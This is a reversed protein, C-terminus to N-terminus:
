EFAKKESVLQDLFMEDESEQVLQRAPIGKERAIAAVRGQGNFLVDPIHAAISDAYAERPSIIKWGNARLHDVLDGLFLAALDNEHLLLVHRPSRGLHKKAIDDYFLISRYIHEVYIERLRAENIKRNHETAQKLLNNIYWDYNDITVYGNALGVTEMAARISDRAEITRGEDLFPFRFWPIYSHYHKLISDAQQMDRIYARTGVDHIHQHTHSHNALIHGANTYRDLRGSDYASIHRTVVFFAVERINRTKLHGIIKETRETGSFLPGDPTPADDFTIAIEQPYATITICVAVLFFLSRM